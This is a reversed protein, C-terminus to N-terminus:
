AEKALREVHRVLDALAQYLRRLEHDDSRTRISEITQRISTLSQM